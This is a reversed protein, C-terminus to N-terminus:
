TIKSVGSRQLTCSTLMVNCNIICFFIMFECYFQEVYLLDVLTFFDRFILFQWNIVNKCVHKM